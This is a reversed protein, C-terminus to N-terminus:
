NFRVVLRVDVTKNSEHDFTDFADAVKKKIETLMPDEETSPVSTSPEAM